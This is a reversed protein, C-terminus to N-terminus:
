VNSRILKSEIIKTTSIRDTYPIFIIEEANDSQTALKNNPFFVVDPKIIDKYYESCEYKIFAVSSFSSVSKVRISETIIPRSESKKKKVMIDSDVGVFLFDCLNMCKRLYAEHGYHFMDFVGSTYGIKM